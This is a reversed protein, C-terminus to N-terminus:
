ALAALDHDDIARGLRQLMVNVLDAQRPDGLDMGHAAVVPYVLCFLAAARYDDDLAALDTEPVGNARLGDKWRAILAAEHDRALDADLTQTVFYALDYAASGTHGLQFDILVPVDDSDFMLNDGRFDGHLLTVPGRNLQQLLGALIDGYRPGIPMTCQPPKCNESAVLKKWGEAFLGPLMVPYLENGLSLAAGAEVIGDVDNWWTAHWAALADVCREADTLSIGAVQDVPRNGKMDEMIIVAESGDANVNGYYGTPVRIPSRDALLEFFRVERSYMQLMASRAAANADLANLKIVVSSPCEPGSLTARYVASSVGLGAGIESLEVSEVNWGTAQSMWEATVEAATLPIPASSTM